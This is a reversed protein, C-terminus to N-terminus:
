TRPPGSTRSPFDQVTTVGDNITVAFSQDAFGALQRPRHLLEASALRPLLRATLELRLHHRDARHGTRSTATTGNRVYGWAGAEM